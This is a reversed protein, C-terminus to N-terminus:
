ARNDRKRKVTERYHGVVPVGDHVTSVPSDVLATEGNALQLRYAEGTDSELTDGSELELSYRPGDGEQKAIQGGSALADEREQLRREREDLIRAREEAEERERKQAATEQTM